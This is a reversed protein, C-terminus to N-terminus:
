DWITVQEKAPKILWMNFQNCIVKPLNFMQQVCWWIELHFDKQLHALGVSFMIDRRATQANTQWGRKARWWYREKRIGNALISCKWQVSSLSAQKEYMICTTYPDMFIPIFVYCLYLLNIKKSWSLLLWSAVFLLYSHVSSVTGPSGVSFISKIAGYSDAWENNKRTSIM